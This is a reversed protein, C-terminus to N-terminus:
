GGTLIRFAVALVIANYFFSIGSHVLVHWRMKTTVVNVDSTAFSSGLTMAFYLFDAEKPDGTDGPFELGGNDRRYLWQYRRSYSMHLLIWAFVMALAGLAKLTTALDDDKSGVFIVDLAASLGLLSFLAPAFGYYVGIIRAVLPRTPEMEKFGEIDDGRTTRRRVVAMGIGLYLFAVIDWLLLSLYQDNGDYWVVALAAVILLFEATGSSIRRLWKLWMRETNRAMSHGKSKRHPLKASLM